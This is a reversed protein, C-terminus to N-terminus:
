RIFKFPFIFRPLQPAAIWQFPVLGPQLQPSGCEFRFVLRTELQSDAQRRDSSLARRTGALFATLPPFILLGSREKGCFIFVSRLLVFLRESM